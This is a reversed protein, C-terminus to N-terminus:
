TLLFRPIKICVRTNQYNTIHLDHWLSPKIDCCLDDCVNHASIPQYSPLSTSQYSPLSSPQYAPLNAPGVFSTSGPLSSSIRITIRLLIIYFNQVTLDTTTTVLQSYGYSYGPFPDLSSTTVLSPTSCTLTPINSTVVSDQSRPPSLLLTTCILTLLGNCCIFLM